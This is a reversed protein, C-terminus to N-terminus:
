ISGEIMSQQLLAKMLTISRGNKAAVIDYCACVFTINTQISSESTADGDKWKIIGLVRADCESNMTM